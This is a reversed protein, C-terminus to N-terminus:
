MGIARPQDLDVWFLVKQYKGNLTACEIRNTEGDTWYIKDTYWDIALGEPKDLGSSIVIQTHKAEIQTGNMKM